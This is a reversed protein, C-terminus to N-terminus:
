SRIAMLTVASGAELVNAIYFTPVKRTRRRQPHTLRSVCEDMLRGRTTPTVHSTLGNESVKVKIAVTLAPIQTFPNHSCALNSSINGM